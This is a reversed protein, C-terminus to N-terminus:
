KENATLEYENHLGISFLRSAHESKTKEEVGLDEVDLMYQRLLKDEEKSIFIVIGKNKDKKTM